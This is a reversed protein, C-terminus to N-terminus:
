QYVGLQHAAYLQQPGLYPKRLEPKCPFSVQLVWPQSPQHPGSVSLFTSSLSTSSEPSSSFPSLETQTNKIIVKSIDKTSEEKFMKTPQELTELKQNLSCKENKIKKIEKKAQILKREMSLTEETSRMVSSALFEVKTAHEDKEEKTSWLKLRQRRSNKRCCTTPLKSSM